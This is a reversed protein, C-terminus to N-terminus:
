SWDDRQLREPLGEIRIEKPGLSPADDSVREEVTEKLKFMKPLVDKLETDDMGASRLSRIQTTIEDIPVDSLVAHSSKLQQALERPEDSM